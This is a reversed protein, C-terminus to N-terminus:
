SDLSTNNVMLVIECTYIPFHSVNVPVHYSIIAIANEFSDYQSAVTPIADNLCMFGKIPNIATQGRDDSGITESVLSVYNCDLLTPIHFAGFIAKFFQMGGSTNIMATLNRVDEQHASRSALITM